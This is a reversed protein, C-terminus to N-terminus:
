RYTTSNYTVPSFNSAIWTAAVGAGNGYCLWINGNTTNIIPLYPYNSATCPGGPARGTNDWDSASFANNPAIVVTQSTKHLASTTGAFGRVVRVSGSAPVSIVSMLERDVWLACNNVNGGCYSATLGATSTLPITTATTSTIAASLTTTTLYTQADIVPAFPDVWAFAVVTLFLTITILTKKM